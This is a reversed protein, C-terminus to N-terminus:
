HRRGKGWYPQPGQARWLPPGISGPARLAPWSGLVTLVQNMILGLNWLLVLDACVPLREPHDGAADAPHEPAGLPREFLAPRRQGSDRECLRFATRWRQDAAHRPRADDPPLRRVVAPIGLVVRCPEERSEAYKNIAQEDAGEKLINIIKDLTMTPLRQQPCYPEKTHPDASSRRVRRDAFGDSYQKRQPWVCVCVCVLCVCVCVPFSNLDQNGPHQM